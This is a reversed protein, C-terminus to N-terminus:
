QEPEQECAVGVLWFREPGGVAVIRKGCHPCNFPYQCLVRPNSLDVLEKCWACKRSHEGM